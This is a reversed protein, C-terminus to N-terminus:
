ARISPGCNGIRPHLPWLQRHASLLVTNHRARGGRQTGLSSHANRGRERCTYTRAYTPPGGCVEIGFLVVSHPKHADLFRDVEPVCMSFRTKPHVSVGAMDLEKVIKGLKAPSQETAVIPVRLARGGALQTDVM